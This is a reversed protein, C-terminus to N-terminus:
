SHLARLHVCGEMRHLGRGRNAGRERQRLIPYGKTAKGEDGRHVVSEMIDVDVVDAQILKSLISVM